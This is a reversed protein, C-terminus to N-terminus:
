FRRKRTPKPRYNALDGEVQKPKTKLKALDKYFLTDSAILNVHQPNQSYEEVVEVPPSVPGPEPTSAINSFFGTTTTSGTSSSIAPFGTFTVEEFPQVSNSSGGNLVVGTLPQGYTDDNSEEFPKVYIPGPTPKVYVPEPKVFIPESSPTPSYIPRAPEIIPQFQPEIYDFSISPAYTSQIVTPPPAKHPAPYLPKSAAATSIPKWNGYIINPMNHMM